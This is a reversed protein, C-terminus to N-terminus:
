IEFNIIYRNVLYKIANNVLIPLDKESSRVKLVSYAFTGALEGFLGGSFVTESLQFKLLKM